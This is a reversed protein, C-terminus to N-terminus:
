QFPWLDREAEDWARILKSVQKWLDQYEERTESDNWHRWLGMYPEKTIRLRTPCLTRLFASVAHVDKIPSVGTGLEELKTFPKFTSSLDIPATADIYLRLRQLNPCSEALPLLCALTLPPFSDALPDTASISFAELSEWSSVLERLEEDTISVHTQQSFKFQKLNPLGRLIVLEQYSIQTEKQEIGGSELDFGLSVLSQCVNAITKLCSAFSEPAEFQCSTIHLHSLNTPAFKRLFLSSIDNFAANLSLDRLVPFAGEPLKPRFRKESPTSRGFREKFGVTHLNPLKAIAIFIKSNYAEPPMFLKQLSRLATMYKIAQTDSVDGYCLDFTLTTLNPARDLLAVFFDRETYEHDSFEDESNSPPEDESWDSSIGISLSRLDKQLFIFPM